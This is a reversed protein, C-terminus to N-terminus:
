HVRPELSRLADLYRTIDDLEDDSIEDDDFSPMSGLGWRVQAKILFAPLPKDNLSPGLGGEGGPHCRHCSRAFAVRGDAASPDATVFGGTFPEGRRATSCGPAFAVILAALLAKLCGFVSSRTAM